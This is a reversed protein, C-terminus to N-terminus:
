IVTASVKEIHEAYTDPDKMGIEIIMYVPM